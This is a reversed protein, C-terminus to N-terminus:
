AATKEEGSNEDFPYFSIFLIYNLSRALLYVEGRNVCAQGAHFPKEKVGNARVVLLTRFEPTRWFSVISMM